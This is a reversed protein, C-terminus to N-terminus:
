PRQSWGRREILAMQAPALRGLTEAEPAAERLDRADEDTITM